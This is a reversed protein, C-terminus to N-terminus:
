ASQYSPLFHQSFQAVAEKAERYAAKHDGGASLSRQLAQQIIVQAHILKLKQLWTLRDRIGVVIGAAQNALRAINTYFHGPDTQSGGKQARQVLVEVTEQLEYYGPLYAQTHLAAKQRASRFAIVLKLKLARTKETNRSYTLLLYSQDENLFAYKEPQGRGKIVETQFRLIGLTKFDDAYDKILEFTTHHRVGLEKAIIRSDVRPEGFKPEYLTIPTGENPAFLGKAGEENSVLMTIESLQNTNVLAKM